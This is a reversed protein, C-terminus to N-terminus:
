SLGLGLMLGGQYIIFSLVWALTLPYIMSFATWSWSNTERKIVAVTALCPCYILAFIMLSLAILPNFEPDDALAQQLPVPEEDAGEIHYIIGMTGVMVEKAAFASVLSVGIKWNFGLPSIIPVLAHGMRGAYSNSLQDSQEAIDIEAITEDFDKRLDLYQNAVAALDPTKLAIKSALPVDVEKKAVPTTNEEERSEEVTAIAAVLEEHEEVSQIALPKLIETEVQQTFQTEAVVREAQHEETWPGEKPYSLAFWLVISAALIITGAKQVYLVSREWMHMILGRLTPLRYPPLEMVFPESDGTLVFKRLLWVVAVAVLIGFLYIGFLITGAMSEAFFAGILLTYVPLRANCSMLPAVMIAAIRDRRSELIRTGMVSPVNCGFGLFLPIFAKGQLGISRMARDVIFAARALYGTDEMFANVLFLLLINPLFGLVAGVGGIIGDVILSNLDGEPIISGVLDSFLGVGAEIWEQPYAGLTFVLNFTCWMIFMFIPIGLWRHTLVRDLKGSFPVPQEEFTSIQSMLKHAAQYRRAVIFLEPEEDLEKALQARLENAKNVANTGDEWDKIVWEQVESDGELLKIALWRHPQNGMHRGSFMEILTTIHPEVHPGYDVQYSPLKRTQGEKVAADLLEKLGTGRRGITAVVPSGLLSSLKEIDITYGKSESEDIMNLDIVLPRELEVLQLAFALHRTLNSADLVAITADPSSSLLFQRAVREEESYCSLSYTGPLDVLTLQLKEEGQRYHIHGEKKDVTVGPYNGVHQNAGTLANFITTKGANPNGAIAILLQNKDRYM